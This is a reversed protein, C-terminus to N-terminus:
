LETIKWKEVGEIKIQSCYGALFGMDDISEGNAYALELNGGEVVATSYMYNHMVAEIEAKSKNIIYISSVLVTVIMPILACMILTIRFDLQLKKTKKAKQEM